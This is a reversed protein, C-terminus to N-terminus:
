EGNEGQRVKEIYKYSVRFMEEYLYAIPEQNDSQFKIGYHKAMYMLAHILEHALHHPEYDDSIILIDSSGNLYTITRAYFDVDGEIQDDPMNKYISNNYEIIESETGYIIRFYSNYPKLNFKKKNLMKEWQKKNRSNSM